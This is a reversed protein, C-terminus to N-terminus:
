RGIQAAEQLGRAIRDALMSNDTAKAAAAKARLTQTTAAYKHGGRFKPEGHEVAVLHLGAAALHQEATHASGSAEFAAKSIQEATQTM